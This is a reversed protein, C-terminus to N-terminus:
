SPKQSKAVDKIFFCIDKCGNWEEARLWGAIHVLPREKQELIDALGTEDARFLICKLRAGDESEMYVRLTKGERGIRDARIVRMYPIALLPEDNGHGFPELLSLQEAVELNAGRASVVHDVKLDPQPPYFCAAKLEDNLFAHFSVAQEAELVFGAAMAHGGGGKLLGQNVARIIVTGLDLGEVSRGSGKIVGEELEAGVLVPRNFREKVKGAVIGVIGQHWGRNHLLLVAYGQDLQQQAQQMAQDLIDSELAQRNRNVGDLQEALRRAEQTDESLLLKLGLASEAIRGGANIRPGLGFGLSMATVNYKVGAVEMLATLGLRQRKGMIKLGQTVFARNLGTLPMVDCVTALAVLDLLGLLDPEASRTKEFFGKKRLARVLAICGMFVVGAACLNALEPTPADPRNPNVVATVAPLRDSKHHDFVIIDLTTSFHDLVHASATGCDVCVVLQAKKELFGNFAKINPGYGESMRDPVYTEVECGLAKLVLALLAASCAGDVDYDGYVTVKEKEEVAQMLRVVAQDIEFLISPDPMLAKLTPSLFHDFQEPSIQRQLVMHAVIASINKQQALMAACRDAQGSNDTFSPIWRRRSVSELVDLVGKSSPSTQLLDDRMQLMADGVENVRSRDRLM